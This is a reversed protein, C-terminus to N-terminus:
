ASGERKQPTYQVGLAGYEFTIGGKVGGGSKVPLDKASAKKSRATGKTAKRKKAM